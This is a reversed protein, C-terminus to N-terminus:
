MRQLREPLAVFLKWRVNLLERILLENQKLRIRPVGGQAKALFANNVGDLDTATVTCQSALAVTMVVPEPDARM